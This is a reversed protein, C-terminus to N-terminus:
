IEYSWTQSERKQENEKKKANQDNNQRENIILKMLNEMKAYM